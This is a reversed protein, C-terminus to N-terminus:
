GQPGPTFNLIPRQGKFKFNQLAKGPIATPTAAPTAEDASSLSAGHLLTVAGGLFLLRLLGANKMKTGIFNFHDLFKPTVLPGFGVEEADPGCPVVSFRIHPPLFNSKDASSRVQSHSSSSSRVQNLFQDLQLTVLNPLNHFKKVRLSANKRIEGL